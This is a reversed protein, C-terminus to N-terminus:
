NRDLEPHSAWWAQEADRCDQCYYVEVKSFDPEHVICGGNGVAGRRNTEPFLTEKAKWYAQVM